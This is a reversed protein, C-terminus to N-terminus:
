QRNSKKKRDGRKLIRGFYGELTEGPNLPVTELANAVFDLAENYRKFMEELAQEDDTEWFKGEDILSFDELYKNSIYRLLRIVTKHTEIGAYQTKTFNGYLLKKEKEDTSKGWLQVAMPSSMKGNSLFCLWVPECGPPSFHIGYIMNNFDKKGFGDEPFETEYIHYDWGYVNVIDRVEEIMAPLSANRKFSGNYHITLGM